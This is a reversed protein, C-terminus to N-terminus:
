AGTSGFGNSGRATDDLWAVEVLETVVPTVLLQAIRDGATVDFRTQSHNILVVILEGRYDSDIVGALVNIGCKVALSSRPKILGVCGAPIKASIGTKIKEWEGPWVSLNEIAHLDFGASGETQRKPILSDTNLKSFEIMM